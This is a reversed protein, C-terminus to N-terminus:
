LKEITPQAAQLLLLLPKQLLRPKKGQALQRYFQKHRRLPKLQEDSLQLGTRLLNVAVEQLAKYQSSTLHKLLLKVQNSVAQVLFLLFLKEQKAYM